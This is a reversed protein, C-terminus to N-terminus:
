LGSEVEYKTKLEKVVSAKEKLFRNMEQIMDPHKISSFFYSSRTHPLGSDFVLAGPQRLIEKLQYNAVAVNIYAGDVRDLVAQRLVGTFSNNESIELKGAKILDFFDWPTFGRVTGITKLSAVGRGKHSPLVMVGDIYEVISDSYLM